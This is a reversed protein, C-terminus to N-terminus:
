GITPRSNFLLRGIALGRLVPGLLGKAGTRVQPFFGLVAGAALAAVLATYPSRRVVRRVDLEAAALRMRRKADEIRVEAPIRRGATLRESDTVRGM